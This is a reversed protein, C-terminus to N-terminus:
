ATSWNPHNFLQSDGSVQEQLAAARGESVAADFEQTAEISDKARAYILHNDGTMMSFACIAAHSPVPFVFRAMPTPTDSENRYTQTFTVRCSVSM